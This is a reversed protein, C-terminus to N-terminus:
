FVVSPKLCIQKFKLYFNSLASTIIIGGEKSATGKRKRNEEANGEELRSLINRCSPTLAFKHYTLSHNLNWGRGGRGSLIVREKQFDKSLPLCFPPPLL